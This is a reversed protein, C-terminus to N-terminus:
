TGFVRGLLSTKTQEVRQQVLPLIMTLLQAEQERRSSETPAFLTSQTRPLKDNMHKLQNLFTNLLEHDACEAIIKKLELMPIKNAGHETAGLMDCLQDNANKTMRQENAGRIEYPAWLLYLDMLCICAEFQVKFNGAQQADSYAKKLSQKAPNYLADYNDRYKGIFESSYKDASYNGLEARVTALSSKGAKLDIVGPGNVCILYRTALKTLTELRNIAASNADLTKFSEMVDREYVPALKPNERVATIDHQLLQLHSDNVPKNANAETPVLIASMGCQSAAFAESFKGDVFVTRAQSVGLEHRLSECVYAVPFDSLRKKAKVNANHQRLKENIQELQAPTLQLPKTDNFSKFVDSLGPVNNLLIPELSEKTNGNRKQSLQWENEPAATRTVFIDGNAVDVVDDNTINRLPTLKGILRETVEIPITAVEPKKFATLKTESTWFDNGLYLARSAHPVQKSVFANLTATNAEESVFVVLANPDSLLKSLAQKSLDPFYFEDSNTHTLAREKRIFYLKEIARSQKIINIRQKNIDIITAALDVGNLLPPRQGTSHKACLREVNELYTFLKKSLQSDDAFLKKISASPLAKLKELLQAAHIVCYSKNADVTTLGLAKEINDVFNLCALFEAEAVSISPGQKRCLMDSEMTLLNSLATRLTGAPNLLDTRLEEFLPGKANVLENAIIFNFLTQKAEALETSILVMDPNSLSMSAKYTAHTAHIGQIQSKIYCGIEQDKLTVKQQLRYTKLRLVEINLLNIALAPDKKNVEESSIISKTINECSLLTAVVQDLQEKTLSKEELIKKALQLLRAAEFKNLAQRLEILEKAVAESNLKTSHTALTNLLELCSNYNLSLHQITANLKQHNAVAARARTLSVLTKEEIEAIEKYTEALSKLAEPSERWNNSLGLVRSMLQQKVPQTYKPLRAATFLHNATVPRVESIHIPTVICVLHKTYADKIDAHSDVVIVESTPSTQKVEAAVEVTSKHADNGRYEIVPPIEFQGCLTEIHTALSKTSDVDSVIIIRNNRNSLIEKFTKATEDKHFFVHSNDKPDLGVLDRYNVAVVINPTQM